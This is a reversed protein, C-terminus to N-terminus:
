KKGERKEVVIEKLGWSLTAAELGCRSQGEGCHRFYFIETLTLHPCRCHFALQQKGHIFITCRDSFICFGRYEECLAPMKSSFSFTMKSPWMRGRNTIRCEFTRFRCLKYVHVKFKSSETFVSGLVDRSSRIRQETGTLGLSSLSMPSWSLCNQATSSKGPSLLFKLQKDLTCCNNRSNSNSHCLDYQLWLPELQIQPCLNVLLLLCMPSAMRKAGRGQPLSPQHTWAGLLWPQSHDYLGRGMWSFATEADPQNWSWTTLILTFLVAPFHDTPNM